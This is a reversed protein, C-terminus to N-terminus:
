KLMNRMDSIKDYLVKNEELDKKILLTIYSSINRGYIKGVTEKMDHYLDNDISFCVRKKTETLDNKNM